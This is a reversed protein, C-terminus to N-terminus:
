HVLSFFLDYLQKKNDNLAEIINNRSQNLEEKFQENISAVEIDM